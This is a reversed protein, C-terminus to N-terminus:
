GQRGGPQGAVIEAIARITLPASRPSPPVELVFPGPHVAFSRACPELRADVLRDPSKFTPNPDSRTLAGRACGMM